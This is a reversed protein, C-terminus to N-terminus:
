RLCSLSIASANWSAQRWNRWSGRLSRAPMAPTTKETTSMNMCTPKRSASKTLAEPMWNCRAPSRKRIRWCLSLTASTNM